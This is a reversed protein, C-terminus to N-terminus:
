SVYGHGNYCGKGSPPVPKERYVFPTCEGYSRLQQYHGRCLVRPQTYRAPEDCYAESCVKDKSAIAYKLFHDKPFIGVSVENLKEVFEKRRIWTNPGSEWRESMGHGYKKLSIKKDFEKQTLNLVSRLHKIDKALGTVRKTFNKM